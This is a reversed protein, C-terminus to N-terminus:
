RVHVVDGASVATEVRGSAVVLRGAADLRVAHGELTEGDPLQVRVDSGVTACLAEVEGLVGAGAADGRAEALAVLHEDLARLYEALLRDEDVDRGMALFSTATQVPLDGETM